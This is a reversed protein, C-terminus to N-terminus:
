LQYLELKARVKIIRAQDTVAGDTALGVPTNKAAVGLTGARVQLNQPTLLALNEKRV